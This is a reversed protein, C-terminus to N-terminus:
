FGVHGLSCGVKVSMSYFSPEESLLPKFDFAEAFIDIIKM